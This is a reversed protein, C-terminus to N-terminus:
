KAIVKGCTGNFQIRLTGMEFKRMTILNNSSVDDPTLTRGDKMKM